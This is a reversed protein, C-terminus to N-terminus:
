QHLKLLPLFDVLRSLVILGGMLMMMRNSLKQQEERLKTISEQLLNRALECEKLHANLLSDTAVALDRTQRMEQMLNLNCQEQQGSM